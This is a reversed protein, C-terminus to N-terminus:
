PIDAGKRILLAGLHGHNAITATLSLPSQIPWRGGEKLACALKAWHYPLLMEKAGSQPIDKSKIHLTWM